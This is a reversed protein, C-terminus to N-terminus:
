LIIISYIILILQIFFVNVPKHSVFTGNAERLEQM